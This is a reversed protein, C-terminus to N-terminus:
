HGGAVSTGPKPKTMLITTVAGLFLAIAFCAFVDNFAMVYAETRVQNTLAQLAQQHASWTSAGAHHLQHAADNLFTRVALDSGSVHEYIRSSHFQERQTIVTSALATGISGGLNRMM